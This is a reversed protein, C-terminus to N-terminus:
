DVHYIRLEFYGTIRQRMIGQADQRFHGDSGVAYRILWGERPNCEIVNPIEEGTDKNIVHVRGWEPTEGVKCYLLTNYKPRVPDFFGM